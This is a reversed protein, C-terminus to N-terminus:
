DNLEIATIILMGDDDFSVIIRLERADVTKGRIAYTWNWSYEDFRDRSKEHWGNLLVFLIEPRSIGRQTQRLSSHYTDLYAGRRICCRVKEPLNTLKLPRKPM